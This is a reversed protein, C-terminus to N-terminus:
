DSVFVGSEKRLDAQYKQLKNWYKLVDGRPCGVRRCYEALEKYTCGPHEQHIREVWREFEGLLNTLEM